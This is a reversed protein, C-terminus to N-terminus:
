VEYKEATIDATLYVKNQSRNLNVKKFHLSYM